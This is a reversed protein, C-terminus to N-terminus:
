TNVKRRADVWAAVDEPVFRFLRGGLAIRPLKQDRVLRLVADTSGLGLRDRVQETTWLASDSQVLDVVPAAQRKAAGFFHRVAGM